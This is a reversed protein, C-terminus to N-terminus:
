SAAGGTLAEWVDFVYGPGADWVSNVWSGDGTDPDEPEGQPNTTWGGSSGNSSAASTGTGIGLLMSGLWVVFGFAAVAVAWYLYKM